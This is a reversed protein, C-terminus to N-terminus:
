GPLDRMAAALKAHYANKRYGAGNYAAAFARCTEPNGTLERLEDQLGFHELYRLSLELQDAEGQTCTWAMAYPSAFGLEDWWEGMVQGIGWSCAMFAAEVEGTAVADSLKEWSDNIGDRDADLTYGGYGSQSFASPSWRGGTFRHFKHREFLIKPLGANDYGRGNAEVAIFARIQRESCGIRAAAAAIDGREIAPAHRNAFHALLAAKSAPGWRGDAPTGIAKQLGAIAMSM